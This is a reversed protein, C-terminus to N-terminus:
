VAKLRLHLRLAPREVWAWSALALPLSGSLSLAALALPDLGPLHAMLSQAVPWGYLYVGFSLDGPLHLVPTRYAALLVGHCFALSGLIDGIASSKCLLALGLTVCLLAPNLPIRGRLRWVAAGFAFSLFLPAFSALKGPFHPAALDMGVALAILGVAKFRLLGLRVIAFCLVYAAVEHQLSWLPGNVSLPYPNAAYAGTIRHELGFLSLGRLVFRAAEPADPRAGSLIALGLTVLLAVTLGPLIRHARAWWFARPTRREASQTILFGSLFFFLALAWGGLSRGTLLALPEARGAGLALPWAHSVVVSLAAILRLADLNGSRGLALRDSLTV